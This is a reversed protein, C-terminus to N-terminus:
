NEENIAKDFAEAEEPTLDLPEIVTPRLNSPHIIKELPQTKQVEVLEELAAAIRELTENLVEEIPKLAM